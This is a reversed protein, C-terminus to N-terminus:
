FRVCMGTGFDWDDDEGEIGAGRPSTDPFLLAIGRQAADRTFGGKQCRRRDSTLDVIISKSNTTEYYGTDETCTLGALYVLVPVKENAALAPLFLNFSTSLGGLAASQCTHRQEPLNCYTM